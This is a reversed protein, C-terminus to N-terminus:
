RFFGEKNTIFYPARLSCKILIQYIAPSELILQERSYFDFMLTLKDNFNFSIIEDNKLKKDNHYFSPKIEWGQPLYHQINLNKLNLVCDSKDNIIHFVVKGEAPYFSTMEPENGSAGIKIGSVSADLYNIGKGSGVPISLTAAPLLDAGQILFSQFRKIIPNDSKWLSQLLGIIQSPSIKFVKSLGDIIEEFSQAEKIIKLPEGDVYLSYVLGEGGLGFKNDSFGMWGIVYHWTGKKWKVANKIAQVFGFDAVFNGDEFYYIDYDFIRAIVKRKGLIEEGDWSPKLWFSFGLRDIKKIDFTVEINAPKILNEHIFLETATPLIAMDKLMDKKRYVNLFNKAQIELDLISAGKEKIPALKIMGPLFDFNKSYPFISIDKSQNKDIAKEFDSILALFFAEELKMISNKVERALTVGKYYAFSEIEVNYIGSPHFIGETTYSLLSYKHPYGFGDIYPSVDPNACYYISYPNLNAIILGIEQPTFLSTQSLFQKFEIFNNFIVPEKVWIDLLKNIKEESIKILHSDGKDWIYGSIGSLIAFLIERPAYNLNIVPRYETLETKLGVKIDCYSQPNLNHTAPVLIELGSTTVFNKLIDFNKKKQEPTNGLINVVDEVLLEDVTIIDRGLTKKYLSIKEGLDPIDFEYIQLARALNNLILIASNKLSFDSNAPHNINIKISTDELKLKYAYIVGKVNKAWIQFEEFTNFPPPPVYGPIDELYLVKVFEQKGFNKSISLMKLTENFATVMNFQVKTLIILNRGQGLSFRSIDSFFLAIVSIISLTGLIFLLIIGKKHKQSYGKRVKM